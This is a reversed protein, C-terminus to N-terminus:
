LFHQGFENCFTGFQTQAHDRGASPIHLGKKIAILGSFIGSLQLQDWQIRLSYLKIGTLIVFRKRLQLSITPDDILAGIDPQMETIHRLMIQFAVVPKGCLSGLSNWLGGIDLSGDPAGDTGVVAQLGNVSRHDINQFHGFILDDIEVFSLPIIHEVADIKGSVFFISHSIFFM